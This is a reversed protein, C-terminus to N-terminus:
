SYGPSSRGGGPQPELQVPPEVRGDRIALLAQDSRRRIPHSRPASGFAPLVLGRGELLFAHARQAGVPGGLTAAPHLHGAIWGPALSAEPPYHHLELPGELLGPDCIDLTPMHLPDGAALDQNGRVLRIELDQRTGLWAALIDDALSLWTANAHRLDGLITVRRCDLGDILEGLRGLDASAAQTAAGQEPTDGPARGLHLDSLLLM